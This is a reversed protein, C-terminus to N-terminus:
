TNKINLTHTTSRFHYAKANYRVTKGCRCFFYNHYNNFSPDAMMAEFDAQNCHAIFQDTYVRVGRQSVFHGTPM